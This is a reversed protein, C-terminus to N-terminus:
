IGTIFYGAGPEIVIPVTVRRARLRWSDSNEERITKGQVGMAQGIYGPGALNEDAMGGLTTSDVILATNATPLNPSVLVRLGSVVPIQGTYVPNQPNERRMATLVSLNNMLRAYHLDDVVLTDATYGQNLANIVGQGLAIDYLPNTSATGPAWAAIAAVATTVQSAIVALAVSDVQKVMQNVLKTLARMVPDFALREIAEDTVLADQGWKSVSAIQAAGTGVTSLPYESGAAVATVTRDSYLSEAQQYEVAGGSVTYRGTLLVDSIFRQQSLTRLARQLITPSNLFRSISLTDGTLTPPAPPYTTPM